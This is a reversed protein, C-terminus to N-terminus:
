SGPNWGADIDGDVRINDFRGHRDHDVVLVVIRAAGAVGALFFGGDGIVLAQLFLLDTCCRAAANYRGTGAPLERAGEGGQPVSAEPLHTISVTKPEMITSLIKETGDKGGRKIFAKRRLVSKLAPTDGPAQRTEFGARM